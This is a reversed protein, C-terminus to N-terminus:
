LLKKVIWGLLFSKAQKFSSQKKIKGNDSLFNIQSELIKNEDANLPYIQNVIKIILAKREEPTKKVVENEIVKAIYLTLEVDLKLSQFLPLERIKKCIDEVLKNEEVFKNLSNKFVVKDM